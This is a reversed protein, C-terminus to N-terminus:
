LSRDFILIIRGMCNFDEMNCEFVGTSAYLSLQVRNAPLRIVKYIDIVGDIELLMVGNAIDTIGFDVIWSHSAGSIYVPKLAAPSILSKDFEIDSKRILKGSQLIYSAIKNSPEAALKGQLKDGEGTALWRLSVGTDLACAVVVDGPFYNRRVWTSITASSLGLLDGLQKQMSFGYASMVRQLLEQGGNELIKKYVSEGHSSKALGGEVFSANAVEGYLLWDIDKKTAQACEYVYRFPISDRSLWNSMTSIPTKTLESFEVNSSVGYAQKMRNLTDKASGKKLGM